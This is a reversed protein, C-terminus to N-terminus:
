ERLFPKQLEYAEIAAEAVIKEVLKVHDQELAAEISLQWAELRWIPNEHGNRKTFNFNILAVKGVNASLPPVLPVEKHLLNHPEHEIAVQLRPDERAQRSYRMSSHMKKYFNLHHNELKAM